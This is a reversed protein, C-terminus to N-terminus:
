GTWGEPFDKIKKTEVLIEDKQYYHHLFPAWRGRVSRFKKYQAGRLTSKPRFKLSFPNVYRGNIKIRYDLHPGTALGSAGVYGIIQKQTVRVGKRIGKGFRYLHGYSTQIGGPHRIVVFRGFGGNWGVFTVRGDAVARVPTGVPAALDVGYHPRYVKLIPHFRRSTFTSTVRYVPLPSRLFSSGLERGEPDYYSGVDQGDPHFYYAEHEILHGEYRAAIIKGYGLFKGDKRYEEYILDFHDGPWTETNFDIQSAFIDFFAMAIRRGAGIKSFALFLSSNVQGSLKMVRREVQVKERCVKFGSNSSSDPTLSYIEIPGKQYTGNLLAGNADLAVSFAEGPRCRRFDLRGSFGRILARSVTSDLGMRLLAHSFSEGNRIKGNIVRDPVIKRTVDVDKGKSVLPVSESTGNAAGSASPADKVESVPTPDPALDQHKKAFFTGYFDTCSLILLFLAATLALGTIIKLRTRNVSM